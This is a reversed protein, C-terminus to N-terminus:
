EQEDNQEIWQITLHNNDLTVIKWTFESTGGWYGVAINIISDNGSWNGEYDAYTIPPTGCWGANKREILKGNNQFSIGYDNDMLSNARAFTTTADNYVPLVWNGILTEPNTNISEESKKCASFALIFVVFAILSRM